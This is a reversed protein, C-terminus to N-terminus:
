LSLAPPHSNGCSLPSPLPKSSVKLERCLPQLRGRSYADAKTGNRGPSGRAAGADLGRWTASPAWTGGGEFAAEGEEGDEDEKAAWKGTM